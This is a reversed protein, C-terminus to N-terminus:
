SREAAVEDAKVAEREEAGPWDSSGKGKTGKEVGEPLDWGHERVPDSANANAAVAGLGAGEKKRGHEHMKTGTHKKGPVQSAVERGELGEEPRGYGWNVDKSTAGPFDLPDSRASLDVEPNNAQGPVESIPNPRFSAEAPATGPPHIELHSEPLRDNGVKIGPQHGGKMMPESPPRRAHFEGSYHAPHESM